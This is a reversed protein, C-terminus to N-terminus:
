SSTKQASRDAEADGLAVDPGKEAMIWRRREDSLSLELIMGSMRLLLDRPVYHLERLSERDKPDHFWPNNNHIICVRLSTLRCMSDPIREIDSAHLRFIRLRSLRGIAEPIGDNGSNDMVLDEMAPCGQVIAELDVRDLRRMDLKRLSPCDHLTLEGSRQLKPDVKSEGQPQGMVHLDELRPCDVVVIQRPRGTLEMRLERLAPLGILMLCPDEVEVELCLCELNPHGRLSFTERFVSRYVRLRQMGPRLALAEVQSQCAGYVDLRRLGPLRVVSDPVWGEHCEVSLEELDPFHGTFGHAADLKDYIRRISEEGFRSRFESADMRGALELVVAHLIGDDFEFPHWIEPM